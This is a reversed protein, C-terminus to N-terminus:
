PSARSSQIRRQRIRQQSTLQNPDTETLSVVPERERSGREGGVEVHDLEDALVEEEEDVGLLDVVESCVM